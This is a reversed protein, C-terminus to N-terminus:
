YQLHRVHLLMVLENLLHNVDTYKANPLFGCKARLSDIANILSLRHGVCTIGMQLLHEETVQLLVSGSTICHKEFLPQYQSLDQQELWSLIQDLRWDQAFQNDESASPLQYSVLRFMSKFYTLSYRNSAHCRM